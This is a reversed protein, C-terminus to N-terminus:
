TQSPHYYRSAPPSPGPRTELLHLRFSCPRNRNRGYSDCCLAVTPCVSAAGYLLCKWARRQSGMHLTPARGLECRPKRTRRDTSSVPWRRPIASHSGRTGNHTHRRAREGAPLAMPATVPGLLWQHVQLSVHVTAFKSRERVHM